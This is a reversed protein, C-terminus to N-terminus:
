IEGVSVDDNEDDYSQTPPALPNDWVTKTRDLTFYYYSGSNPDLTKAWGAAFLEEDSPAPEDDYMTTYSSNNGFSKSDRTRDEEDTEASCSGEQVEQLYSQEAMYQRTVDSKKPDTYVPELKATFTERTDTYEQGLLVSGSNYTSEGVSKADGNLLTSNDESYDMSLTGSNNVKLPMNHIGNNRGSSRSNNSRVTPSLTSDRFTDCLPDMKEVALNTQVQAIALLEIHRQREAEYSGMPDKNRKEVHLPEGLDNLWDEDSALMAEAEKKKYKKDTSINNRQQQQKNNDVVMQGEFVHDRHNKSDGSNEDNGEQERPQQKWKAKDQYADGGEGRVQLPNHQKREHEEKKTATATATAEAAAVAAEVEQQFAALKAYQPSPIGCDSNDFFSASSSSIQLELKGEFHDQVSEQPSRVENNNNQLLQQQQQQQHQQQQPSTEMETRMRYMENTILPTLVVDSVGVGRKTTTDVLNATTTATATTAEQNNNNNNNNNNDDNNNNNNNNNDDDNNNM